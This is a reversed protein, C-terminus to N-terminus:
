LDGQPIDGFIIERLTRRGGMMKPRRRPSTKVPAKKTPAKKTPATKASIKKLSAKKTPAKKTPAKKTPAKKVPAKKAPAKKTPAKKTPASPQTKQAAQAEKERRLRMLKKMLTEKRTDNPALKRREGTPTPKSPGGGGQTPKSPGGKGKQEKDQPAGRGKIALDTATAWLHCQWDDPHAKGKHMAKYRKVTSPNSLMATGIRERADVMASTMARPPKHSNVTHEEIHNKVSEWSEDLSEDTEIASPVMEQLANHLEVKIINRFEELKM